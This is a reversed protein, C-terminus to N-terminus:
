EDKIYKAVLFAIIAFLLLFLNNYNFSYDVIAEKPNKFNYYVTIKQGKKYNNEVSTKSPLLINVNKSIQDNTYSVGNVEYSYVIRQKWGETDSDIKSRFYEIDSFLIVGETKIWKKISITYFFYIYLVYLIIGIGAYIFLASIVDKAEM